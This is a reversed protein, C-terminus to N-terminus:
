MHFIYPREHGDRIGIMYSEDHSFKVGSPFLKMPLMMPKIPGVDLNEVLRITFINQHSGTIHLLAFSTLIGWAFQVTRPNNRLFYFGSNAYFPSYRLSRQGDDSFLGDPLGLDSFQISDKASSSNINKSYYSGYYKQYESEVFSFYKWPNRFWVIDIDQFLIDYGMKLMLWVSFSKYWMMDIFIHDLYENSAHKAVKAFSEEHFISLINFQELFPILDKSGVFVIIKNTPIRNFYCSCLFNIFLDLEGANLVMIVLKDGKTINHRALKESIESELNSLSSVLKLYKSAFLNRGRSNSVKDFFGQLSLNHYKSTEESGDMDNRILNSTVPLSTRLIAQCSYQRRTQPYIHIMRECSEVPATHVLYSWEPYQLQILRHTKYSVLGKTLIPTFSVGGHKTSLHLSQSSSSIQIRPKKLCHMINVHSNYKGISYWVLFHVISILLFFIWKVQPKLTEM